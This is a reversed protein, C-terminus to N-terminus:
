QYVVVKRDNWFCICEGDYQYRPANGEHVEVHLNKGRCYQDLEHAYSMPMDGTYERMAEHKPPHLLLAKNKTYRYLASVSKKMHTGMYTFGNDLAVEVYDCVKFLRTRLPRCALSINIFFIISWMVTLLAWYVKDNNLWNNVNINKIKIIM